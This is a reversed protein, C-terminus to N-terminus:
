ISTSPLDQANPNDFVEAMGIVTDLDIDSRVM